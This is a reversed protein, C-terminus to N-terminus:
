GCAFCIKQLKSNDRIGSYGQRPKSFIESKKRLPIRSPMGFSNRKIEKSIQKGKRKNAAAERLARSLQKEYESASALDGDSLYCKVVEWRDEERDAIRLM